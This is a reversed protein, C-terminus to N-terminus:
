TEIQEEPRFNMKDQLNNYFFLVNIQLFQSSFIVREKGM